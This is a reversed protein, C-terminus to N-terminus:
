ELSKLSEIMDVRALKRKMFLMVVVAFSLTVLFAIVFSMGHIERGFMVYDVEATVIVFSELVVGFGLGILAGLITLLITERYIYLDVERPTFGLVKLTAIERQRETININTLNYLVIFALAAAAVVLVVVIMNVSSLMQRYTDIIEKNFSITKVEDLAGVSSRFAEHGEEDDQVSAFFADAVSPEGFEDEYVAKDMFVYNAVYNEVIGGVPMEYTTSTANGMSDQEALTLYDGVGIGLLAGLKETILVGDQSLRQPEHGSRTRMTWIGEFREDDEPVILSVSVDSDEPGSALMSEMQGYAFLGDSSEEMVRRADESFGDEASVQVKYHVIETFEKDIIDNIANYLGFGTLLLGTCGAIGIVTMVLRKKYRFINRFTVKWSFSLRRWLPTVRELLIRKGEKPARPLMLQAPTERLTSAVAFWTAILTVGVGLAVSALAIGPQIPMVWGHPVSYIIAYAEMIVPPLVLCLVLVGLLSGVGSALFAYILYKSTIRARSYGLAKFTGILQREEEVMRTMTTLAVLAAVLFFIFPFFAAISDVRDADSEFSVAGPNKTRDMILWEPEKLDDIQAQADSIKQEAEVFQAEADARKEEYEVLGREYEVSGADLQTRGSALERAAGDLQSQAAGLQEDAQARKRDLEEQVAALQAEGGAILQLNADLKALNEKAMSFQHQLAPDTPNLALAQELNKITELLAARQQELLAKQEALSAKQEDIQAQGQSIEQDALTRQDALEQRGSAYDAEGSALKQRSQELTAAADDLQQKADALQAEADAREREFDARKEDLEAQAEAKISDLRARERAPAIGEIEKVVEDVRSQYDHSGAFLEKAGSVTIFAETYPLDSAFANKPVYLFQDVTGSGLSTSGMATTSVYYPSHAFGVVTFSQADLADELDQAGQLLVVEDGVSVPSSMVNDASIICEDEAVPWRGETLTLKNIAEPSEECAQAEEETTVAGEGATAYPLSHIRVAYQEDDLSAMADTEYAGMVEEIGEVARLAELDADELGLTSVVRIDMLDTQDYYGDAALDMDPATMRLGAYFGCGLAVIGMIAFFRGLSDGISRFIEKNFVNGM